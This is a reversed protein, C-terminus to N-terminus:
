YAENNLYKKITKPSIKLEKAAHLQKL